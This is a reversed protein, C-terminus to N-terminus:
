FVLPNMSTYFLRMSIAGPKRHQELKERWQFLRQRLIEVDILKLKDFREDYAAYLKEKEEPSLQNFLAGEMEPVSSKLIQSVIDLLDDNEAKDILQHLNRKIEARTKM